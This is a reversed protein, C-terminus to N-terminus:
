DSSPDPAKDLSKNLQPWKDEVLHHSSVRTCITRDGEHLCVRVSGDDLNIIEKTRM